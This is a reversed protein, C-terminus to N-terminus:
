CPLITFFQYNKICVENYKNKTLNLLVEGVLVKICAKSCGCHTNELGNGLSYPGYAMYVSKGGKKKKKSVCM